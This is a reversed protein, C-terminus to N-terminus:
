LEEFPVQKIKFANPAKLDKEAFEQMVKIFNDAM